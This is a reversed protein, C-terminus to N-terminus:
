SSLDIELVSKDRRDRRIKADGATTWRHWLFIGLMSIGVLGAAIWGIASVGLPDPSEGELNKLNAAILLPGFQRESGFQKAYDTEYSWLRFFFGEVQVSVRVDSVVAEGGERVRIASKLFEPLKLMVISVPYRNEFVAPESEPDKESPEIKVIVNGLDGFTDIQFYHDSGLQRQRSADAVAVRTVQVTEVPVTVFRAVLSNPDSLLDIPKALTSQPWPPSQAAALMMSYFLETDASSLPRRDRTNLGPLEAIDVDRDALWQWSANAADRPHWTMRSAVVAITNGNEDSPLAGRDTLLMGVVKLLDGPTCSTPVSEAIVDIPNANGVDIKIVAISALELLGELTSPIAYSKADVFVGEFQVADGVVSDRASGDKVGVPKRSVFSEPSVKGVRYLLKAAESLSQENQIPFVQAIRQADFGAVLDIASDALSASAICCFVVM